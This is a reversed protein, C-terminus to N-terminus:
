VPERSGFGQCTETAQCWCLGNSTIASDELTAIRPSGGPAGVAQRQPSDFVPGDEGGLLVLVVTMNDGGLGQTEMLDPSICTDLMEELIGSLPRRSRLYSPLRTHVFDVADQNSMVDWVGDCAIILFEDGPDRLFTNVDPTACIMQESPQLNPNKKYELDGISRSLNLNGNVRYQVNMGIERREVQGGAKQIRSRERPNNPKHDESLPVARRRRSLVARSDGASAVTLADPRILCVVATCGIWQPNANPRASAFQRFGPAGDLSMEGDRLMDDMTHFSTVLSGAPDASSLRSLQKPLYLACFQAVEKGGHGDLVGFLASDEWGPGDVSGLAFHADEMQVRWGQMGSYAWRLGKSPASGEGSEKTTVPLSTDQGM